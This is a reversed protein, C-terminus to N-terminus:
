KAAAGGVTKLMEAFRDVADKKLAFDNNGPDKHCADCEVNEMKKAKAAKTLEKMTQKAQKRGGKQCAQVVPNDGKTAITCKDDDKAAAALPALCLSSAIMTLAVYRSM